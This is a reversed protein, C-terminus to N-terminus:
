AAGGPWPQALARLAVRDAKAYIATTSGRVQRLVQGAETLSAGGALMATAASHRLRHSGAPPLGARQSAWRVADAVGRTGLAGMPARVRLFLARCGATGPRGARLYAV